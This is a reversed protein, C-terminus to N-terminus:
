PLYSDDVVDQYDLATRILDKSVAWQLVDQFQAMTPVSATPYDPLTYTELLQPPVLNNELLLQDWRDKDANIAEVARELARISIGQDYFQRNCPTECPHFCTRGCVGPFPHKARVNELAEDFRENQILYITRQIDHGAPCGAECPSTRPQNEPPEANYSTPRTLERSFKPPM